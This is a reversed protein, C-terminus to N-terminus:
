QISAPERQTRSATELPADADAELIELADRRRKALRLVGDVAGGLPLDSTRVGDVTVWLEERRAHFADRLKSLFVVTEPRGVDAGRLRLNLGAANLGAAAALLGAQAREASAANALVSPGAPFGAMPVLRCGYFGALSRVLVSQTEAVAVGGDPAVEVWRPSFARASVAEERLGDLREEDFGGAGRKPALWEEGLPVARLSTLVALAGHTKGDYVGVLVRGRDVAPNLPLSRGFQMRGNVHVIASGGKLVFRVRAPLGGDLMPARALQTPLNRGVKQEVYWYGGRAGIRVFSGDPKYRAYVWFEKQFKRLEFELAVDRWKETGRLFVGAGSQRPTPLLTLRGDGKSAVGWGAVWDAGLGDSSFDDAFEETRPWAGRVVGLNEAPVRDARLDLIRLARPDDGREDLGMDSAVFRLPYAGPAKPAPRRGDDDLLALIRGAEPIRPPAASSLL